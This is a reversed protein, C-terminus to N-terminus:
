GHETVVLSLIAPNIDTWEEYNQYVMLLNNTVLLEMLKASELTQEPIQLPPHTEHIMRLLAHASRPVLRRYRDAREALVIEFDHDGLPFTSFKLSDQLMRILERAYGGSRRILRDIRPSWAPGFLALLDAESLRQMVMRRMADLGPAHDSGDKERIKILPMFRIELMRRTALAAPVTFIAHVGLTQARLQKGFVEEASALILDDDRVGRLQELSDFVVILDRHSTVRKARERLVQMHAHAEHEFETRFKAIAARVQQKFTPNGRLELVLKHGDKGLELKPLEVTTKTLWAWLREVLSEHAVEPTRQGELTRAITRETQALVAFVLEHLELPEHLDILEAADVWVPFLHPGQPDALRQVVRKLETSKGSGPLGTLLLLTPATPLVFESAIHEVWDYRRPRGQAGDIDVYREDDPDLPHDPQCAEYLRRRDHLQM